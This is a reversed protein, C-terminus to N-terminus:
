SGLGRDNERVGSEKSLEARTIGHEQRKQEIPTLITNKARIYALYWSGQQELNLHVKLNKKYDDLTLKTYREAIKREMGMSCPFLTHAKILANTVGKIPWCM